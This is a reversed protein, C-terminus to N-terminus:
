LISGQSKPHQFHSKQTMFSKWKTKNLAASEPNIEPTAKAWNFVLSPSPDEQPEVMMSLGAPHSMSPEKTHVGCGVNGAALTKWPSPNHLDWYCLIYGRVKLYFEAELRM